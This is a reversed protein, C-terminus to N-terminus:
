TPPNLTVRGDADMPWFPNWAVEWLHGDPDAFYGSRGGWDADHAPRTIRGGAAEAEALRADVEAKDRVNHAVAMRGQGPQSEVGADAALGPYLCLVWGKAGFFAVEGEVVQHPRWGIAEYFACARKLDDVGLTVATLRQEM